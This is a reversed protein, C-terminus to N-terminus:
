VVPRSNHCVIEGKEQISNYLCTDCYNPADEDSAFVPVAGQPSHELCFVQGDSTWGVIEWSKM